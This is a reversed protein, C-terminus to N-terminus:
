DKNAIVEEIQKKFTEVYKEREIALENIKVDIESIKNATQLLDKEGYFPPCAQGFLQLHIKDM